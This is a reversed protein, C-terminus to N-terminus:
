RGKVVAMEMKEMKKKTKGHGTIVSVIGIWFGEMGNVGNCVNLILDLNGIPNLHVGNPHLQKLEM